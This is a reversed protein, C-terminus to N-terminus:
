RGRPVRALRNPFSLLINSSELGKGVSWVEAGGVEGGVGHGEVSRMSISLLIGEGPSPSLHRLFRLPRSTVEFTPLLLQLPSSSDGLPLPSLDYM